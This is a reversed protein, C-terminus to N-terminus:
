MIMKQISWVFADQKSSIARAHKLLRQCRNVLMHMIAQLM